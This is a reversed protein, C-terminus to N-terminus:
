RPTTRSVISRFATRLSGQPRVGADGEERMVLALKEQGGAIHGCRDLEKLIRAKPDRLVVVENRGRRVYEIALRGQGEGVNLRQEM